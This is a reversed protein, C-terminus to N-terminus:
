GKISGLLDIWDEALRSMLFYRRVAERANTGLKERLARDNLLQVIRQRKNLATSWLDTKETRSRGAYRDQLHLRTANEFVVREYIAKEETSFEVTSGQLLNHIKKTCTFFDPTGQIMRWGAEIGMTNMLLTLPTLIEAVGGGYFTSSIHVVSLGDLNAAKARIREAAEAGILPEYDELSHRGLSADEIEPSTLFLPDRGDGAVSNQM